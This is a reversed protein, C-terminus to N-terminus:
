RGRRFPFEKTQDDMVLLIDLGVLPIQENINEETRQVVPLPFGGLMPLTKYSWLYFSFVIYQFSLPVLVKDRTQLLLCQSYLKWKVYFDVPKAPKFFHTEWM